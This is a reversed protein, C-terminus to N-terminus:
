LNEISEMCFEIIESTEKGHHELGCRVSDCCVCQVCVDM